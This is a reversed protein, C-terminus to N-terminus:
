SGGRSLELLLKQAPRYGPAAELAMLLQEKADDVRGAGQLAKALNYRSSAQDVPKMAIVSEYSRVADAHRGEATYLDGLKRHLEEDIPYIYILRSLTALAEKKKGAEEQMTALKKLVAPNRGGTKSYRELEAIAGAKNGKAEHADALAEYMNGAEVYEPYLDRVAPGKALVEDWNKAKVAGNVVKVKERWEDFGDLTVKNQATLWALFEKDFAEPEMGLQEKVVQPTPTAKSFANMMDLLKQYGWKGVIYDCIKGAQFYSVVVQAPYTPRVFGRDLEAIPLLKGKKIAMIAEPDLRDGWDPSAATEEHVAFGETFWRPVRHKTAALVYVHSLEHWLTSAWHFSGPKRGSPSDMAVVYGFTVGLAGLGPLGLTRVAFDEHDPYVELQVPRGLKLKYKRDFTEIARKLEGEIYPKLIEDEKKHLRVITTPTTHTLFNKYSDMLTLSNATLANKYGDDYARELAERAEKEYGLRMLNVGLQARADSLHPSLELAKKYHAIGEEYRRNIVFFHGATAYLRGYRPNIKNARDLWETGPKDELWDVTTLIALADLADPSIKLAKHAEERAKVPNNDELALYALLEQAELLKPDLEIAKTALEVAKSEFGDSAVLALGLVAPPYDPRIELAEQFLGQADSSNFGDQYFLRGWRVRLEPNKDDAKVADRFANNADQKERLGWFGEARDWPKSSTTLKQFCAQAQEMQSKYELARCNEGPAAMLPAAAAGIAFWRKRDKMWLLGIVLLALPLGIAISLGWSRV